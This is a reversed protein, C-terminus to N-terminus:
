LKGSRNVPRKLILIWFSPTKLLGSAIKWRWKRACNATLLRSLKAKLLSRWTSRSLKLLCRAPPRAKPCHFRSMWMELQSPGSTDSQKVETTLASERTSKKKLSSQNHSRKKQRRNSQCKRSKSKNSSQNRSRLRLTKLSTKLKRRNKQKRIRSKKRLPTGVPRLSQARLHSSRKTNM